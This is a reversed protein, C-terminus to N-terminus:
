SVLNGFKAPNNEYVKKHAGNVLDLALGNRPVQIFDGVNTEPPM